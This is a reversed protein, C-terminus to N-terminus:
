SPVAPFTLVFGGRLPGCGHSEPGPSRPVRPGPREDSRSTFRRPLDVGAQSLKKRLRFVLRDVRQPNICGGSIEAVERSSYGEILVMRLARLELARRDPRVVLAALAALQRFTDRRITVDEPTPIEDVQAGGRAVAPEKRFRSHRYRDILFNSVVRRFYAWLQQDSRGFFSRRRGALIRCFIDQLVDEIENGVLHHKRVTCRVIRKLHSGYRKHFQYWSEEGREELCRHFLDCAPSRPLNPGPGHRM